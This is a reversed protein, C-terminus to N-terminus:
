GGDDEEDEVSTRRGRRRREPSGRQREDGGDPDDRRGCGITVQQGRLAMANHVRDVDGSQERQQDGRDVELRQMDVMPSTTVEAVRRVGKRGDGYGRDGAVMPVRADDDDGDDVDIDNGVHRGGPQVDTGRWCGGQGAVGRM